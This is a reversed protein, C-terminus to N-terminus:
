LTVEPEDIEVAITEFAIMVKFECENNCLDVGNEILTITEEANWSSTDLDDTVILCPSPVVLDPNSLAPFDTGELAAVQFTPHRSEDDANYYSLFKVKYWSNNSELIYVGDNPNVRHVSMDYTYWELREENESSLELGSSSEIEGFDAGEIFTWNVSEGLFVDTSSFRMWYNSDNGEMQEPLDYLTFSDDDTADILTTFTFGDAGLNPIVNNSTGNSKSQSGFSCTNSEGDIEISIELSSWLLDEADEDFSLQLLQNDTSDNSISSSSDTLVVNSTGLDSEYSAMLYFWVAAVTVILITVTAVLKKWNMIESM